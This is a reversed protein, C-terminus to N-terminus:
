CRWAGDIVLLLSRKGNAYVVCHANQHSSPGRQYSLRRVSSTGVQYAGEEIGPTHTHGTISRAGMRALNKITGRAGNPGDDGHLGCEIDSIKFSEDPRLCRLEGDSLKDVWHAFPDAYDAGGPKMHASRMMVLATELYFEANKLDSRWDTRSMWRSLFDHHNSDVLVATRGKSRARVFEVAEVLEARVDQRKAVRKANAIFPNGLEHPNTTEGDLTDHWVLVQPNLTEVIGGPGFTARDTAPDNVRVHTDGLVLGLAPPADEVGRASYRKDLDIFSGDARDANIQRIHFKQGHLEVVLAGLFHHFAGLKGAKTDSYNRKTCAGTTTLLKPYRGIPVPISRLQMKPHGLICSEAGTLSEFGTLPSSATPQTKVDAALVLNPGLKKRTNHLYPTVAPDWWENDQHGRTWQSTPNQYRLPIVVLEAGMSKAAAQLAAWFPADVPTANQASTVLYRKSDLARTFRKPPPPPTNKQGPNSRRCTRCTARRGDKGRPM